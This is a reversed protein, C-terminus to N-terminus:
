RGDAALHELLMAYGEVGRAGVMVDRADFVMTPVGSVGREIWVREAARVADAFRGDVLVARAEDPDLGVRGAAAALAAPDNVDAGETFYARFLAQHLADARGQEEAWRLLQHARFTPMRMGEPFAFHFGVAAGMQQLRARAQGSQAPTAGYKRAMHAGLEEGADPMRPNLEFPHWRVDLAVGAQGAAAVLQRHGVVCWPCVVDSVIDVRVVRAEDQERM